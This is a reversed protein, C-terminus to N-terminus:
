KMCHDRDYRVHGSGDCVHIHGLLVCIDRRQVAISGLHPFPPAKKKRVYNTLLAFAALILVWASFIFFAALAPLVKTTTFPVFLALLVAFTGIVAGSLGLDYYNQQEDSLTDWTDGSYEDKWTGYMGIYTTTIGLM